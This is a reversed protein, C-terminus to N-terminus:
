GETYRGAHTDGRISFESYGLCHLLPKMACPTTIESRQDPRGSVRTRLLPRPSGWYRRNGTAREDRDPKGVNESRGRFAPNRLHPPARWGRRFNPPARKRSDSESRPAASSMARNHSTHQAISFVPGPARCEEEPSPYALHRPSM